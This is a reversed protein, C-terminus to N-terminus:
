DYRVEVKATVPESSNGASDKIVLQILYTGIQSFQFSGTAGYTEASGAGTVSWHYNTYTESGSVSWASYDVSATGGKPISIMLTGNKYTYLSNTSSLLFHAVPKQNPDHNSGAFVCATQSKKSEQGLWYIMTMQYCYQQGPTFSGKDYYYHEHGGITTLLSGDRFIRYGEMTSDYTVWWDLYVGEERWIARLGELSRVFIRDWGSAEGNPNKVQVYWTGSDSLNNIEYRIQNGSVVTLNDASSQINGGTPPYFVLTAGQVFNHGNITITQNDNLFLIEYPSVYSIIPISFAPLNEDPPLGTGLVLRLGSYSGQMRENVVRSCVRIQVSGDDTSGGRTIGSGSHSGPGPDDNTYASVQPNIRPESSYQSFLDAVWERVNGSMDYLGLENPAKEGVPHPAREGPQLQGHIWAVADVDNSGSYIYDHSYVGGRAAYEWEAETPLRYNRGTRANLKEIFEQAEYWNVNEVPLNDSGTHRSPNNGMIAKWQGQTVEYKGIYFDSLTVQQAMVIGGGGCYPNPGQGATCGMAFTGGKVFVMEEAFLDQILSAAPTQFYMDASRVCENAANCAAVDWKYRHNADLLLPYSTKGAIPDIPFLPGDAGNTIDRLGIDYYAAGSVASWTFTVNNSILVPGPPTDPMGVNTGPALNTPATLQPPELPIARTTACMPASKPSENGAADYASVQYCYETSATLGTNSFSTTTVSQLSSTAGNRYIRYGSVGINDTAASWSLNIQTSSEATATLNTPRAPAVTDAAPGSSVVLNVTAGAAVSAGSSPSQSIVNGSPVTSSNSTTVNAKLGAATIAAEAEARAKGVVNPMPVLQPMPSDQLIYGLVDGLIKGRTYNSVFTDREIDAGMYSLNFGHCAIPFFTFPDCIIPAYNSSNAKLNFPVATIADGFLTYHNEGSAVRNAPTAVAVIHFSKEIRNEKMYLSVVDYADNVYLNGQSHSIVIINGNILANKYLTIQKQLDPQFVATISAMSSVFAEEFDTGFLKGTIHGWFQTLMDSGHQIASQGFQDLFNALWKGPEKLIGNNDMFRSNYALEVEICSQDYGPPLESIIAPKIIKDKTRQAEVIGTDIGNGFFITTPTTPCAAIAVQNTTFLVLISFLYIYKRM